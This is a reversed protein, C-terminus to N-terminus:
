LFSALTSHKFSFHTLNEVNMNDFVRCKQAYKLSLHPFGKHYILTSSNM